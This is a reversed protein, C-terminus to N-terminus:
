GRGGGGWGRARGRRRGWGRREGSVEAGEGAKAQLYDRLAVSHTDPPLANVRVSYDKITTTNRDAANATARVFWFMYCCYAFFILVSCGLLLCLPRYHTSPLYSILHAALDHPSNEGDRPCQSHRERRQTRRCPQLRSPPQLFPWPWLNGGTPSRALPKGTHIGTDHAHCSEIPVVVM